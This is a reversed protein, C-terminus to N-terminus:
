TKKERVRVSFEVYKDESAERATKPHGSERTFEKSKPRNPTCFTGWPRSSVQSVQEDSSKGTEPPIPTCENGTRNQEIEIVWGKKTTKPTM